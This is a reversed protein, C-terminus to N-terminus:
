DFSIDISFFPPMGSLQLVTHRRGDDDCAARTEPLFLSLRNTLCRRRCVITSTMLMIDAAVIERGAPVKQACGTERCGGAHRDVNHRM